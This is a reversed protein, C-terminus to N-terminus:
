IDKRVWPSMEPFPHLSNKLSTAEPQEQKLRTGLLSAFTHSVTQTSVSILRKEMSSLTFHKNLASFYGAGAVDLWGDM